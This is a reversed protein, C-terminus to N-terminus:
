YERKEGKNKNGTRSGHFGILPYQTLLKVSMEEEENRFVGLCSYIIYKNM